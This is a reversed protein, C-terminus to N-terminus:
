ETNRCRNRHLGQPRVEMEARASRAFTLPRFKLNLATMGAAQSVIYAHIRRRVM